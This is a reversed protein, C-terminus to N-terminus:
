FVWQKRAAAIDKNLSNESPKTQGAKMDNIEAVVLKKVEDIEKITEFSFDFVKPNVPQSSM